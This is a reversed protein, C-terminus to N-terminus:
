IFKYKIDIYTLEFPLEKNKLYEIIGQESYSHFERIWYHEM